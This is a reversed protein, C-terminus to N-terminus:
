QAKTFLSQKLVRYDYTLSAIEIEQAKIKEDKATEAQQHKEQQMYVDLISKRNVRSNYATAEGGYRLFLFCAKAWVGIVYVGSFGAYFPLAVLRIVLVVINNIM